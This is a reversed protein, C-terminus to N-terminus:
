ENGDCIYIYVCVCLTHAHAAPYSIQMHFSVFLVCVRRKTFFFHHTSFFPLQNSYYWPSFFPLFTRRAILLRCNTSPFVVYSCLYVRERSNKRLPTIFLFSLSKKKFFSSLLILPSFFFVFFLFMPPKITIMKLCFVLDAMSREVCVCLDPLLVEM